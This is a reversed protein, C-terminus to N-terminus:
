SVVYMHMSGLVLVDNGSSFAAHARSLFIVTGGGVMADAVLWALVRMDPKELKVKGCAQQVVDSAM